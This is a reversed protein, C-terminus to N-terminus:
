TNTKASTAAPDALRAEWGDGLLWHELYRASWARALRFAGPSRRVLAAGGQLQVAHRAAGPPQRQSFPPCAGGLSAGAFDECTVLADEHAGRTRRPVEEECTVLAGGSVQGGASGSTWQCLCRV